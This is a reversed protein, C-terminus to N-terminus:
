YADVQGIQTSAGVEEGGSDEVCGLFGLGLLDHVKCLHDVAVEFFPVARKGRFPFVADNAYGAVGDRWAVNRKRLAPRTLLMHVVVHRQRADDVVIAHAADEAPADDHRAHCPQAQAVITAVVAGHVILRDIHNLLHHILNARTDREMHIIFQLRHRLLQPLFM